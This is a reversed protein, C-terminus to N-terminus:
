VKDTIDVRNLVSVFAKAIEEGTHEQPMPTFGILASQLQLEQVNNPGSVFELWHATMAMFSRLNPDTWIDTTVSIKGVANQFYLNRTLIARCQSFADCM